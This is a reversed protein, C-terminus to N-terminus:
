ASLNVVIGTRPAAAATAYGRVYVQEPPVVHNVLTAAFLPEIRMRAARRDGARRDRRRQDGIEAFEAEIERPRQAGSM